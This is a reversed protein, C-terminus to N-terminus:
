NSYAQDHSRRINFRPTSTYSSASTQGSIIRMLRMRHLSQSVGLECLMESTLCAMTEGDIHEQEFADKYVSLNMADLLQLVDGRQMKKLYAINADSDDEVSAHQKMCTPVREESPPQDIKFPTGAAETGPSAMQQTAATPMAEYYDIAVDNSLPKDSKFPTAAVKSDSTTQQVAATPIAEYYDIAVLDYIHEERSNPATGPLQLPTSLLTRASPTSPAAKVSSAPHASFRAKIPDMSNDIYSPNPDMIVTDAPNSLLMAPRHTIGHYKTLVFDYIEDLIKRHKPVMTVITLNLSVPVEAMRSFSAVDDLSTGEKAKMMGIFVDEKHVREVTIVNAYLTDCDSITRMTFPPKLHDFAQQLSLRVDKALISFRGNCDPTIQVMEGSQSKAHLVGQLGKVQKKKEEKLFLLTGVPVTKTSRESVRFEGSVAVVPPLAKSQFLENATIKGFSNPRIGEADMWHPVLHFSTTNIPVAYSSGCMHDKCIVVLMNKKELVVFMQEKGLSYYECLSRHGDVVKVLCPLDRVRKGKNFEKLSMPKGTALFEHGSASALRLTNDNQPLTQNCCNATTSSEMAMTPRFMAKGRGNKNTHTPRSPGGAEACSVFGRGGRATRTTASENRSNRPPLPPPLEPTGSMGFSRATRSAHPKCLVLLPIAPDKRGSMDNKTDITLWLLNNTTYSYVHLVEVSEQGTKVICMIQNLLIVRDRWAVGTYPASM